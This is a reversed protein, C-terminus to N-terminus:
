APHIFGPTRWLVLPRVDVSLRAVQRDLVGKLVEAIAADFPLTTCCAVCLVCRVRCVVRLVCSMCCAALQSSATCVRLVVLRLRRCRPQAERKLAHEALVHDVLADVAVCGVEGDGVVLPGGDLGLQLGADKRIDVRGGRGGSSHVTLM